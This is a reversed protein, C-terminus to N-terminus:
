ENFRNTATNREEFTCLYLNRQANSLSLGWGGSQAQTIFMGRDERWARQLVGRMSYVGELRDGPKLDVSGDPLILGDDELYPLFFVLRFLTRPSNGTGPSRLEDELIKPGPGGDVQCVLDIPGRELRKAGGVRDGSDVVVPERFDDDFSDTSRM